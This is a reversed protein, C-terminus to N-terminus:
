GAALTRRSPARVLLLPIAAYTAAFLLLLFAAYTMVLYAAFAAPLLASIAAYVINLVYADYIVVGPLPLLSLLVGWGVRRWVAARTMRQLEPRLQAVARQSLASADLRPATAGLRAAIQALPLPEATCDPCAAAHAALRAQLDGGAEATMGPGDPM